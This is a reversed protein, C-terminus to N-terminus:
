SQKMQWNHIRTTYTGNFLPFKLNYNTRHRFTKITRYMFHVNEMSNMFVHVMHVDGLNLDILNLIGKSVLSSDYNYISFM